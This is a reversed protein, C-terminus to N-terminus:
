EVNIREEVDIDDLAFTCPHPVVFPLFVEVEIASMGNYTYTVAMGVIDAM